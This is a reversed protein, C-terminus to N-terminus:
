EDGWIQGNYNYIIRTGDYSIVPELVDSLDSSTINVPDHEGSDLV